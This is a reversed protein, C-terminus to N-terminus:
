IRLRRRLLLFAVIAAILFLGAPWLWMMGGCCGMMGAGGMMTAHMLLMGLAAVIAVVGVVALVILLINSTQRNM